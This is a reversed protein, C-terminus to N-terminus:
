IIKVFKQVFVSGVSELQVSYVGSQYRSVDIDKFEKVTIGKFTEVVEGISNLITIDGQDTVDFGQIDLNLRDMVPNPYVAMSRVGNCVPMHAVIPGFINERGDLDVQRLRYYYTSGENVDFDKFYHKTLEAQVKGPIRNITTFSRADASRQIEMFDNNLESELDFELGVFTCTPKAVFRSLIIPMPTESVGKGPTLVDDSIDNSFAQPCGGFAQSLIQINVPINIPACNTSIEGRARLMANGSEGFYMQRNNTGNWTNNHATYVWDFGAAEVIDQPGDSVWYKSAPFSVQIKWSGPPVTCNWDGSGMFWSVTFIATGDLDICQVNFGAGTLAPDCDDTQCQSYSHNVYVSFLLVIMLKIINKM